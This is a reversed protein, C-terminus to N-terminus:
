EMAIFAVGQQEGAEYCPSVFSAAATSCGHRMINRIPTSVTAPLRAIFSPNIGFSIWCVTSIKFGSDDLAERSAAIAFYIFYDMKKLEKKEVFKAPDFGKTEAAFRVTHQSTDFRKIYDVGSRGAVLGAWTEEATNGLPSVLGLGTIVVRRKIIENAM